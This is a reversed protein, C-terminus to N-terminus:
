WSQYEIVLCDGVEAVIAKKREGVAWVEVRDIRFNGGDDGALSSACTFTTGNPQSRGVGYESDLYFSWFNAELSGGMGQFCFNPYIKDFGVLGNPITKQNSNLYAFNANYGTPSYIRFTPEISFLFCREDGVFSPGSVFGASAFAGFMRSSSTGVTKVLVICAGMGDIHKSLKMFSEGHVTSSFFPYSSSSYAFKLM